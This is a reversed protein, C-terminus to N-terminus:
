VYRFGGKVCLRDSFVTGWFTQYRFALLSGVDMDFEHNMIQVQVVKLHNIYRPKIM